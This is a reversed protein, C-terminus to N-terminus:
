NITINNGLLRGLGINIEAYYSGAPLHGLNFFCKASGCGATEYVVETGSIDYVKLYIIPSDQDRSDAIAIIDEMVIYTTINEESLNSQVNFKGIDNSIVNTCNPTVNSTFILIISLLFGM